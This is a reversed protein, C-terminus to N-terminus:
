YNNYREEYFNAKNLQGGFDENDYITKVVSEWDSSYSKTPSNPYKTMSLEHLISSSYNDINNVFSEEKLAPVDEAIYNTSNEVFQLETTVRESKATGARSADVYSYSYPM